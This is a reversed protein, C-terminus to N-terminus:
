ILAGFLLYNQAHLQWVIQRHWCITHDYQRHQAQENETPHRQCLEHL